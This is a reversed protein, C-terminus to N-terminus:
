REIIAYVGCLAMFLWIFNKKISNFDNSHIPEIDMFTGNKLKNIKRSTSHHASSCRRKLVTAKEGMM